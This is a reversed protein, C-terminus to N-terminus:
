AQGQQGFRRLLQRFIIWAQTQGVRHLHLVVTRDVEIDILDQLVGLHNQQRQVTTDAVPAVANLPQHLQGLTAHGQDQHGTIVTGVRFEAGQASHGGLLSLPEPVKQALAPPVIRQLEIAAQGVLPQATVIAPVLRLGQRTGRNIMRSMGARCELVPLGVPLRPLRHGRQQEIARMQLRGVGRKDIHEALTQLRRPEVGQRNGHGAKFLWAAQRHHLIQEVLHVGPHNEIGGAKGM